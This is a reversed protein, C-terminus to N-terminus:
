LGLARDDAENMAEIDGELTGARASREQDEIRARHAMTAHWADSGIASLPKGDADYVGAPKTSSPAHPQSEAVPAHMRRLAQAAEIAAGSQGILSEFSRQADQREETWKLIEDM